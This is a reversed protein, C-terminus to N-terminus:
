KSRSVFPRCTGSRPSTTLSSAHATMPFTQRSDKELIEIDSSGIIADARKSVPHEDVRPIQHIRVTEDNTQEAEPLKMQHKRDTSTM